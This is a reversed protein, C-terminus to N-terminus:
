KKELTTKIIKKLKKSEFVNKSKGAIQIYRQGCRWSATYKTYWQSLFKIEGFRLGGERARGELPQRTLIQNPGRARSNGTWMAKNNRQVYFINNPVEVCYVKDYFEVISCDQSKVNIKDYYNKCMFDKGLLKYAEILEFGKGIDVYMKHNLTVLTDVFENKIKVMYGSKHNSYEFTNIPNHYEVLETKPNWTLLKDKLTIDKISKWGNSTLADHKEDLCHIKDVVMHKLRQYYTPGVFIMSKMMEGTTGSYVVEDCQFNYGMDHLKKSIKAVYANKVNLDKFVSQDKIKLYEPDNLEFDSTGIFPTADGEADSFKYNKMNKKMTSYVKINKNQATVCKGVVTELLQGITMRSPIALANVIMDPVIGDATFPMDEKRYLVGCTGKQAARSAFKDGVEPIRLISIKIKVYDYGNSNIGKQVAIVHGVENETFIVSIDTKPKKYMEDISKQTRCILPDGKNVIEGVRVIGDIDLHDTRYCKFAVCHDKTPIEYKVNDDNKNEAQYHVMYNSRFLGLDVSSQNLIVSDEQNYGTFPMIFVVVNQGCPLDKYKLIELTKSCALPSQPHNLIHIQGDMVKNYNFFPVGVSQKTMSTQYSNRPSQNHNMFPITSAGVGYIISPHLECYDFHKGKGLESPYNAIVFLNNQEAASVMEIKENVLLDNWSWEGRELKELDEYTVQLKENKVIFLPRLLRGYDTNIYLHNGSIYIETDPNITMKRKMTRLTQEFIKMDKTYGILDGNVFIINLDSINESADKIFGDLKKIIQVLTTPDEGISVYTSLALQKTLGCTKGESTESPCIYGFSTPHLRRPEIIKGEQGLPNNIKRLNSLGCIYNYKEFQQSVGNKKSNMVKTSSWNGTTLCTTMKKTITASKISSVINIERPGKSLLKECDNKMDIRVKKWATYFLNHLLPGVTDLRKNEQDDRDELIQKKRKEWKITKSKFNDKEWVINLLKNTLMGLYRLKNKIGGSIHPFLEVTILHKAYSIAESKEKIKKTAKEKKTEEIDETDEIMFKKGRKGIYHLAEEESRIVFSQELTNQMYPLYKKDIYKAIDKEEVVGMAKFLIGLLVANKDPIYPILVYLTDNLIGVQTTTTHSGNTASSRVEVFFNFKPPQKRNEFLYPKSFSTREQSVVVKQSGGIIFTGGNDRPCEGYKYCDTEDMDRMNCLCSGVMVPIKGIFYNKTTEKKGTICNVVDVDIYLSSQYTMGRNKTELPLIKRKASDKEAFNPNEYSLNYFFVKYALEEKAYIEVIQNQEIVQYSLANIFNNYSDIQHSVLGIENFYTDIVYWVDRDQIPQKKVNLKNKQITKKTKNQM